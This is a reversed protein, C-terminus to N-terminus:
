YEMEKLYLAKLEEDSIKEFFEDAYNKRMGMIAIIEDREEKTMQTM